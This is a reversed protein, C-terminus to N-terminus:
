SGCTAVNLDLMLLHLVWDGNSHSFTSPRFVLWDM